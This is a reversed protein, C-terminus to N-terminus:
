AVVFSRAVIDGPSGSLRVFPASKNQPQAYNLDRQKVCAALCMIDFPLFTERSRWSPGNSWKQRKLEIPLM